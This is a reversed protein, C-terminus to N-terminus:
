QNLISAVWPKLSETVSETDTKLDALKEKSVHSQTSVRKLAEVWKQKSEMDDAYFDIAEGNAFKIRFAADVFIFADEQEAFASKRRNRGSTTSMSLSSKDEVIRTAKALNISVRPKRSESYATLDPGDLKFYRRRWYACDGGLQSLYGDHTIATRREEEHRANEAEIRIELERKSKEQQAKGLRLENLAEKISHPLAEKKSQRPVFMMQVQLSGIQYPERKAQQGPAVAWENFIPVDFTAPHGHIEAEYDELAITARGFSGDSGTLGEWSDRVPVPPQAQRQIQVPPLRPSPAPSVEKKRGFLRSFGLKRSSSSSKSSTTQISAVSATRSHQVIRAPQAVAKAVAKTWKARVTLDFQLHSGAILEFEQEVAVGSKLPSFPTSLEQVGNDLVLNFSAKKENVQPLNVNKLGLVRVFMRGRDSELLESKKRKRTVEFTESVPVLAPKLRHAMYQSDGPQLKRVPGSMRRSRESKRRDSTAFVIQKNEKM